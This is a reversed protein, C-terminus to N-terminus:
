ATKVSPGLVAADANLGPSMDNIWRRDPIGLLVEDSSQQLPHSCRRMESAKQACIEGILASSHRAQIM